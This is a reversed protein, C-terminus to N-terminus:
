IDVNSDHVLSLNKATPVYIINHIATANQFHYQCQDIYTTTITVVVELYSQDTSCSFTQRLPYTSTANLSLPTPNRSYNALAQLTKQSVYETTTTPFSDDLYLFGFAYM